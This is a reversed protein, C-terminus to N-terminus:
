EEEHNMDVGIVVDCEHNVKHALGTLNCRYKSMHNRNASGMHDCTGCIKRDTATTECYDNRKWAVTM